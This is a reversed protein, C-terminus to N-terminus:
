AGFFALKDLDHKLISLMIQTYDSFFGATNKVNKIVYLNDNIGWIGSTRKCKQHGSLGLSLCCLHGKGTSCGNCQMRRGGPVSRCPLHLETAAGDATISQSGM